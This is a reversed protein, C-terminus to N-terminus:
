LVFLLLNMLMVKINYSYFMVNFSLLIYMGALKDIHFIIVLLRSMKGVSFKDSGAGIGKVHKM